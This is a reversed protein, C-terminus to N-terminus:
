SGADISTVSPFLFVADAKMRPVLLTKMKKIMMRGNYLFLTLSEPVHVLSIQYFFSSEVRVKMQNPSSFTLFRIVM